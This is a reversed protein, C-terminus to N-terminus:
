FECDVSFKTIVSINKIQYNGSVTASFQKKTIEKEKESLQLYSNFNIAPNKAFAFSLGIKENYTWIEKSSKTMSYNFDFKPRFSKLLFSNCFSFNFSNINITEPLAPAVNAGIIATINGKLKCFSYNIGPGIKANYQNQFNKDLYFSIGSKVFLPTFQEKFELPLIFSYQIGTKIQMQTSIFKQSSTFFENPAYFASFNLATKNFSIKNESKFCYYFNGFPNEYQSIVFSNNSIKNQIGLQFNQCFINEKPYYLSKFDPLYWSSSINEKFPVIGSSLCFQFKSSKIKNFKIMLSSLYSYLSMDNFEEKPAIILFNIKGQSLLYNKYPSKFEQQLFLSNSKSFSTSSPLSTTIESISTSANFFPSLSSSLIPSNLKSLSGGTSLKGVKLNIPFSQNFIDSNFSIGYALESNRFYFAEELFHFKLREGIVPSSFGKEKDWSDQFYIKGSIKDLWFSEEARLCFGNLIVFAILWIKKM